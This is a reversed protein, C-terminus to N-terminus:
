APVAAPVVPSNELLIPLPTLVTRQGLPSVLPQGIPILPQEFTSMVTNSPFFGVVRLTEEGANRVAHPTLAPVLLMAGASAEVTQAGVTVQGSGALIFLIEEASDTHSGLRHGPEVEFYVVATSKNGTMASFPFTGHMWTAPDDEYGFQMLPLEDLKVVSLESQTLMKNEKNLLYKKGVVRTTENTHM